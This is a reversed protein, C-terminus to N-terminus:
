ATRLIWTDQAPLFHPCLCVRVDKQQAPRFNRIAIRCGARKSKGYKLFCFPEAKAWNKINDRFLGVLIVEWVSM